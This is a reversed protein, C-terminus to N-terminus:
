STTNGGRKQELFTELILRASEADIDPNETGEMGFEAETTTLREDHLYVPLSFKKKLIDKFSKVRRGHESISGDINYPLGLILGTAKKEAILIELVELLEKTPVTRYPFAFVEFSYALGSKKTGYDIAIFTNNSMEILLKYNMKHIMGWISFMYQMWM